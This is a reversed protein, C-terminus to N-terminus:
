KFISLTKVFLNYFLESEQLSALSDLDQENTDSQMRFQELKDFGIYILSAIRNLITGVWWDPV